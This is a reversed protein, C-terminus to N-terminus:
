ANHPPRAQNAWADAFGNTSDAGDSMAVFPGSRRNNATGCGFSGPPPSQGGLSSRSMPIPMMTM